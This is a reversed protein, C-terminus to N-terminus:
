TNSSVGGRRKIASDAFSGRQRRRKGTRSRQHHERVSDGNFVRTRCTVRSSRATSPRPDDEYLRLARLLVTPTQFHHLLWDDPEHGAPVACRRNRASVWTPWTSACCNRTDYTEIDPLNLDNVGRVNNTVASGRADGGPLSGLPTTVESSLVNLPTDAPVYDISAPTYKPVQVGSEGSEFHLLLRLV